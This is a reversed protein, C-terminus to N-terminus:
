RGGRAKLGDLDSPIVGGLSPGGQANKRGGRRSRARKRGTWSASLRQSSILAEASIRSSSRGAGSRPGRAVRRAAGENAGVIRQGHVAEPFIGRLGGDACLRARRRPGQREDDPRPHRADRPPRRDRCVSPVTMKPMEVDLLALDRTTDVRLPWRRSGNVAVRVRYDSHSQLIDTVLVRVMPQDDAVLITKM